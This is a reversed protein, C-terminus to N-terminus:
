WDAAIIYDFSNCWRNPIDDQWLLLQAEISSHDALVPALKQCNHQM